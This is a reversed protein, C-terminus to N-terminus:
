PSIKERQCQLYKDIKLLSSFVTDYEEPSLLQIFQENFRTLTFLVDEYMNQGQRTLYILNSRRDRENRERRVFGKVELSRLVRTTVSKDVRVRATLVEQTVGDERALSLYFPMEGSTLQFPQLLKTQEQAITRSLPMLIRGLNQNM